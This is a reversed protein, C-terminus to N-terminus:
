VTAELSLRVVDPLLAFGGKGGARQKVPVAMTNLLAGCFVVEVRM